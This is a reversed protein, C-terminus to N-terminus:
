AKGGSTSDSHQNDSVAQAAMVKEAVEDALIRRMGEAAAFFHGRSDGHQAKEVNM